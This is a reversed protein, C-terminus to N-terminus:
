ESSYGCFRCSKKDRQPQELELEMHVEVSQSQDEKSDCCLMSSGDSEDQKDDISENVGVTVATSSPFLDFDSTPESKPLRVGANNSTDAEVDPSICQDVQEEKVQPYEQIQEVKIDCEQQSDLPETKVVTPLQDPQQSPLIEESVLQIDARFLMVEPKLVTLQELQKRLQIIETRSRVVEDQYEAITKEVLGFIEEAAAALRENVQLRLLQTGAMSPHLLTKNLGNCAIFTSNHNLGGRRIPGDQHGDEAGTDLRFVDDVHQILHHRQDFEKNCKLCKFAKQGEHFRQMHRRLASDSRFTDSCFRCSKKDRQPQELEMHVEVSQSQDKESDCCLMPSGDSEDQKDDISENVGVTVATSSPFLDFDSTPESKPLRVGANNSTDAEVDPSICQEVQEEKVQSYEQIQELKIDCQELSPLLDESVPKTDSPCPPPVTDVEVHVQQSDLPETKVVTPLQDPQQSPLIEESVLQIDARFLMVEPKLVTLQELQKRLQIIETRSRVVEDQYEAITKEVLGFIEEAAAALRENVQLRLLQTGAM